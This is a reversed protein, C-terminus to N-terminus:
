IEDQYPRVDRLWSPNWSVEEGEKQGEGRSLVKEPHTKPWSVGCSHVGDPGLAGAPRGDRLM